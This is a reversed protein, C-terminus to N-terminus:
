LDISTGLDGTALLGGTSSLESIEPSSVFISDDNFESFNLLVGCRPEYFLSACPHIYMYVMYM